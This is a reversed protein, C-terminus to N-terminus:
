WGNRGAQRPNVAIRHSQSSLVPAERQGAATLRGFRPTDRHTIEIEILPLPAGDSLRWRWIRIGQLVIRDSDPPATGGVIRRVLDTDIKEYEVTGVPHGNLVLPAWNWENDSAVADASARIDARIQKLALSAVPDLARRASHAMRAQSELLLQGVITIAVALVLFSVLLELLSFGQNRRWPGRVRAKM